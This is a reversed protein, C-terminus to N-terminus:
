SICQISFLIDLFYVSHQYLIDLFYVSHQTVLSSCSVLLFYVSYQYLIDLFYVSHRTVLSSCSVLMALAMVPHKLLFSCMSLYETEYESCM